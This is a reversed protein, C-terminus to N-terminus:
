SVNIKLAMCRNQSASMAKRFWERVRSWIDSLILLRPLPFIKPFLFQYSMIANFLIASGSFLEEWSQIPGLNSLYLVRSSVIRSLVAAWSALLSESWVNLRSCLWNAFDHSILRCDFRTQSFSDWVKVSHKLSEGRMALMPSNFIDKMLCSGLCAMIDFEGCCGASLLPFWVSSHGWFFKSTLM